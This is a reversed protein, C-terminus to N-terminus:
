NEHTTNGYITLCKKFKHSKESFSVNRPMLTEMLTSGAKYPFRGLTHRKHKMDGLAQNWSKFPYLVKEKKKYKM